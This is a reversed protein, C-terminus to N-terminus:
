NRRWNAPSSAPVGSPTGPVPGPREAAAGGAPQVVAALREALALALEPTAVGECALVITREDFQGILDSERGEREAGAHQGGGADAADLADQVARRVEDEAAHGVAPHAVRLREGLGFQGVHPLAALHHHGLLELALGVLEEGAGPFGGAWREGWGLTACVDTGPGPPHGPTM